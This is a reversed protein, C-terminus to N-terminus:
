HDNDSTRSSSRNHRTTLHDGKLKATGPAQRDLKDSSERLGGQVVKLKSRVPNVSPAAPKSNATHRWWAGVGVILVALVIAILGEPM